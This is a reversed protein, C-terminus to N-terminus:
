GWMVCSFNAIHKELDIGSFDFDYNKKVEAVCEKPSEYVKKFPDAGKCFPFVLAFQPFDEKDYDFGNDYFCVSKDETEDDMVIGGEDSIDYAECENRDLFEQAEDDMLVIGSGYIAYNQMSM